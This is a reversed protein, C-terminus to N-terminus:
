ELLSQIREAVAAESESATGVIHHRVIGERDIYFTAPISVVGYASNVDAGKFLVPYTMHKRVFTQAKAVNEEANIGLVVVDQDAYHRYNAELYPIERICPACWTAWFNLVVPKGRFDSLAVMTGDMDPLSFDPAPEGTKIRGGDAAQMSLGLNTQLNTVRWGDAHPSLTLTITLGQQQRAPSIVTLLYDEGSAVADQIEFQVFERIQRMDQSGPKLRTEMDEQSRYRLLRHMGYQELAAWLMAPNGASLSLEVTMQMTTFTKEISFQGAAPSASWLLLLGSLVIGPIKSLVNRM